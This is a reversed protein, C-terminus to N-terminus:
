MKSMTYETIIPSEFILSLPAANQHDVCLVTTLGGGQLVKIPIYRGEFSDGAMTMKGGIICISNILTQTLNANTLDIEEQSIFTMDEFTVQADHLHDSFSGSLTYKYLELADSPTGDELENVRATLNAIASLVSAYSDLKEPEESPTGREVKFSCTATTFVENVPSYVSFNVSVVGHVATVESPMDCQWASYKDGETYLNFTDFALDRTMVLNFIRQDALIFNASVTATDSVPLIARIGASKVSGQFVKEANIGISEGSKNFYFVM